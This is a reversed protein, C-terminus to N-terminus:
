KGNFKQYNIFQDTANSSKFLQENNKEVVVEYRDRIYKNLDLVVKFLFSVAFVLIVVVYEFFYKHINSLKSREPPVPLIENEVPM